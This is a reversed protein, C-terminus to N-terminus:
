LSGVPFFLPSFLVFVWVLVWFSSPLLPDASTRDELLSRISLRMSGCGYKGLFSLAIKNARKEQGKWGKAEDGDGHKCRAYLGCLGVKEWALSINPSLPPEAKANRYPTACYSFPCSRHNGLSIRVPHLLVMM